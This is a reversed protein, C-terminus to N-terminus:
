YRSSSGGVDSVGCLGLSPPGRRDGPQLSHPLAGGRSDCWEPGQFPYRLIWEDKYGNVPLGLVEISPEPGM